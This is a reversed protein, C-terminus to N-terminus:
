AIKLGFPHKTWFHSSALDLVQLHKKLSKKDAHVFWLAQTKPFHLALPLEM